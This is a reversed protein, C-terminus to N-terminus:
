GKARHIVRAAAIDLANERCGLAPRGRLEPRLVALFFDLFEIGAL